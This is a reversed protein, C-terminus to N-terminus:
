VGALMRNLRERHEPKPEWLVNMIVWRRNWKVVHLFDVWEPGDVKVCAANEFVELITIKSPRKEVKAKSGGGRRTYQVLTMAGMQGLGSRGSGPRSFVVRKALEPHLAREMREADGEYWGDGYDRAAREIAELDTASAVPPPTGTAQPERAALLGAGAGLAVALVLYSRVLLKLDWGMTSLTM